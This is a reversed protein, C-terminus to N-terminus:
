SMNNANLAVSELYLEINEIGSDAAITPDVSEIRLLQDVQITTAMVKAHPSTSVLPTPKSQSVVAPAQRLPESSEPKAPASWGGILLTGLIAVVVTGVHIDRTRNRKKLVM